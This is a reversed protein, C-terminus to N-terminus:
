FVKCVILTANSFPWFLLQEFDFDDLIHGFFELRIAIISFLFDVFDDILPVGISVIEHKTATKHITVKHFASSITCPIPFDFIRFFSFSSDICTKRTDHSMKQNEEVKNKKDVLDWM